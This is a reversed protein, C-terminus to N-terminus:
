SPIQISLIRGGFILRQQDSPIGEQDDIKQKVIEITHNRAVDLTLTKGSLSFDQMISRGTTGTLTKIFIQIPKDAIYKEWHLIEGEYVNQAEFTANENLPIKEKGKSESVRGIIILFFFLRRILSRISRAGGSPLKCFEIENKPVSYNIADSLINQLDSPKKKLDLQLVLVRKDSTRIVVIRVIGKEKMEM